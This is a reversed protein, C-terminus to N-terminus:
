CNENFKIFIAKTRFEIHFLHLFKVCIDKMMIIVRSPLLCVILLLLTLYYHSFLFLNGPKNRLIILM